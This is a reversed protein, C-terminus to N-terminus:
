LTRYAQRGRPRRRRMAALAFLSKLYGVATSYRTRGQKRSREPALFSGMEMASEVKDPASEDDKQRGSGWLSPVLGSVSLTPSHHPRMAAMSVGM